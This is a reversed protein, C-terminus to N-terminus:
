LTGLRASSNLVFRLINSALVAVLTTRSSKQHPNQKALAPAQWGYGASGCVGNCRMGTTLPFESAAKRRCSVITTKPVADNLDNDRSGVAGILLIELNVAEWALAIASNSPRRDIVYRPGPCYALASAKRPDFM